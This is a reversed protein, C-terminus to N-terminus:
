TAETEVNKAKTVLDIGIVIIKVNSRTIARPKTEPISVNKGSFYRNITYKIGVKAEELTALVPCIVFSINKKPKPEKITKLAMLEVPPM